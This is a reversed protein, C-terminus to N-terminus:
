FPAARPAPSCHFFEHTPKKVSIPWFILAGGGLLILVLLNSTEPPQLASKANVGPLQLKIKAM